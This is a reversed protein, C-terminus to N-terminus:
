QDTLDVSLASRNLGVVYGCHQFWSACDRPTILAMALADAEDLQERTRAEFSCLLSKLKSWDLEIPSM